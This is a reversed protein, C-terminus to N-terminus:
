QPPQAQRLFDALLEAAAIADRKAKKQGHTMGSRAMQWDAAASTLREDQYHVPLKVRAHLKEGWGRCLKARPGESGDMNLALGLVLANPAHEAIVKALADLLMAGGNAKIPVELVGAPLSLGTTADGVALGTRKDGLDIALYRVCCPVNVSPLGATLM